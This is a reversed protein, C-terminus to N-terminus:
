YFKQKKNQNTLGKNDRQNERQTHIHTNVVHPDKKARTTCQTVLLKNAYELHVRQCKLWTSIM